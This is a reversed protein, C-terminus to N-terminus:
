ETLKAVRAAATPTSSFRKWSEGPVEDARILGQRHLDDLDRYIEFSCPGYDYAVFEYRSAAPLWGEPMKKTILFMGKMIRIPDIPTIAAGIFAM